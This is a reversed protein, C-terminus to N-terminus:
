KFPFFLFRQFPLFMYPFYLFIKAVNFLLKSENKTFHPHPFSYLGKTYVTLQPDLLCFQFWILDLKVNNRIDYSTQGLNKWLDIFLSFCNLNRWAIQQWAWLLTQSQPFPCRPTLSWQTHLQCWLTWSRPLSPLASDILGYLSDYGFVNFSKFLYDLFDKWHTFM